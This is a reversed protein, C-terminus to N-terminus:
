SEFKEPAILDWVALGVALVCGLVLLGCIAVVLEFQWGDVARSLQFVAPVKNVRMSLDISGSQHLTLCAWSFVITLLGFGVARM